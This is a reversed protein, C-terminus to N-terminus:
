IIGFFRLAGAIAVGAAILWAGMQYVAKAVHVPKELEDIRKRCQIVGEKHETLDVTNIAVDKEIKAVVVRMDYHMELLKYIKSEVREIGSCSISNCDKAVHCVRGNLIFDKCSWVSM